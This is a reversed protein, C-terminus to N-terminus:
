RPRGHGQVRHRRSGVPVDVTDTTRKPDARAHKRAEEAVLEDVKLPWDTGLYQNLLRVLARRDVLDLRRNRNALAKTAATFRSTTVLVGKSAREDSVVGLLARAYGVKPPKNHHKCEVLCRERETPKNKTAIVDRGGDKSPSTLRTSYGKARYLAAVLVELERPTLKDLAMASGDVDGVLIYKARIIARADSMGCLRGDPMFGAHVEFYADIVDLAVRPNGPLLDLIWTIGEWPQVRGNTLVAGFLRRTFETRPVRDGSKARHALHQATLHDCGLTGSPILFRRLLARVEADSRNGVSRLYEHRHAETPFQYTVLTNPSRRPDQVAELWTALSLEVGTEVDGGVGPIAVSLTTCASAPPDDGVTM